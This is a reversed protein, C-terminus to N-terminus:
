STIVWQPKVTLERFSGLSVCFFSEWGLHTLTFYRTKLIQPIFVTGPNPNRPQVKRDKRFESNTQPCFFDFWWMWKNLVEDIIIRPKCGRSLAAMNPTLVFSYKRSSNVHFYIKTGLPSFHKQEQGGVHGSHRWTCVLLSSSSSSLSSSSSSSSSPANISCFVLVCANM